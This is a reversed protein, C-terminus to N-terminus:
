EPKLAVGEVKIQEYMAEVEARTFETPLEHTCRACAAALGWAFADACAAEDVPGDEGEIALQNSGVLQYLFIAACVDGAGIANVCEISPVSISYAGGSKCFLRAPKAGDTLALLAGPRHLVAHEPDHLLRHAAADVSSAATFALAEDVNIKLVDVRGTALVAEVGKFGDLLLLPEGVAASQEMLVGEAFDGYLSSCGPPVTGCLAVGGVPVGAAAKQTMYQATRSLLADLEAPSVTGSPDILETGGGDQGAALLTTCTRTPAATEQVIQDAGDMHDQIYKGTEGGLFHSVAATGPAWGNIAKAVGQGKGGVYETVTAARNVSGIQVPADFSLVRQYAPNPGLVLVKFISSSTSM